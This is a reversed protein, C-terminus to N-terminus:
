YVRNWQPDDGVKYIRVIWNKTTFAETFQSMSIDKINPIPTRRTMDYGTPFQPHPQYYKYNNYCFKFMMSLTMNKTMSEGVIHRYPIQYMEGTINDFTQHAIRPMWLFKNIDDGSYQAAGGFIVLMYKVNMLRAIRWSIPEPSSMAMGIIGIHTFNNTNGDAICGRNGMSTIQYGYDWWSMIIDDRHTNETLWRYGERYDDSTEVGRPTMINFHLHDGSYSYCAFHTAHLVSHLCIIFTIIIMTLSVPHLFSKPKFSERLLQHIAIGAVFVLAPTFVLVLRVMISAFYLTSFGYIFLLLLTEARQLERQDNTNQTRILSSIVIYAGLPFFFIFLECDSYYKVWATPQHEAVSNIIPVNKSAYTPDFMQLLRGSFGGLLGTSMGVTIMLLLFSPLILISTIGVSNYTTPSFHSKVFTFFGWIQMVIFTGLMAFHEPKKLIKDGIFPVQATLISSVIFWISYTIHLRWSYRGIAVLGAAFLPICNSVFVYGGWTLALYSYAFAALISFLISGSKLALAFTYLSLVIIFLGICEYDYAGGVSRSIMGPIFSTIAGFLTGLQASGVLEGFLFAVLVSLISVSPGMSVCITRLDVIIHIKQLVWKAIASTYMLGPYATEGVPRGQPYWSINDFWGLFEYLGHNDIYQTCRWNFQPDFEHILPENIVNAFQRILFALLCSLLLTILQIVKVVKGM